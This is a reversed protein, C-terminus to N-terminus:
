HQNRFLIQVQIRADSINSGTGIPEGNHIVHVVVPIYFVGNIVRANPNNAINAAIIAKRETIKKQLNKEFDDLSGMEPYKQRMIADNEMTYCRIKGTADFMQRNYSYMPIGNHMKMEDKQSSNTFNDKQVTIQKLEKPENHNHNHPIKTKQQAYVGVSLCSLLVTTFLKM